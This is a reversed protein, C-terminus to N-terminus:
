SSSSIASALAFRTAAGAAASTFLALTDRCRLCFWDLVTSSSLWTIASKSRAAESLILGFSFSWFGDRRDSETIGTM